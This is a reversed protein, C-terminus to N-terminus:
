EENKSNLVVEETSNLSGNSGLLIGIWRTDETSDMAIKLTMTLPVSLLMGVPGLVWGWFILSLFVVLTSLGLHRGLFRPEVVSGMIVNVVVYGMGAFLAQGPGLQILALLISPVAAIISGINPIFNLLFALIGWLLPFDVGLMALWIAIAIGTALSVLTKIAIYRQINSIFTDFFSLSADPNKVMVKLKASFGSAEFLIFIVTFLILFGNTLMGKLGNLIRAALRMAAGPDFADILSQDHINIGKGGLWSLVAQTMEKLRVQYAPLNQSFSNVSTGALAAIALGIVLIGTVLILVSLSTPVGKNKLWFLPPACIVSIFVALLFPVLIPGAARMGAVVIIFAALTVLFRQLTPQKNSDHM